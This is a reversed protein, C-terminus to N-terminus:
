IGEGDQRTQGAHAPIIRLKVARRVYVSPKGRMRPSSGFVMFWILPAHVNAGCARPHDPSRNLLDASKSTQGAHAPIIRQPQVGTAKLRPKGRMRPSSGATVGKMITAISNAGCARPHDLVRRTTVQCPSTQGAHAPIIRRTGSGGLPNALKGRM